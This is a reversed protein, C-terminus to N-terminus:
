AVGCDTGPWRRSRRRAPSVQIEEDNSDDFRNLTARGHLAKLKAMEDRIARMEARAADRFRVYGPPEPGVELDSPGGM